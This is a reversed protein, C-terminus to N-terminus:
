NLTAACYLQSACAIVLSEVGHPRAIKYYAKHLNTCFVQRSVTLATLSRALQIALFLASLM